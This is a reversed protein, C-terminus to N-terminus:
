PYTVTGLVVLEGANGGLDGAPASLTFTSLEAGTETDFTSQIVSRYQDETVAEGVGTEDLMYAALNAEIASRMTTTDPSIASFVFNTTIPTPANVILDASAMHAPKQVADMVDKVDQVESGSPIIDDDNGRIFYIITQGPDGGQPDDPDFVWVKTVGAVTDRIFVKITDVSFFALYGRVRELMRDRYDTESEEDTGGGLEGQDVSTQSDVGAITSTFTLTANADQNVDQGFDISIVPVVAATFTITITGTAPSTGSGAFTYTGTDTDLMTPTFTGNYETENAGAVTILVNNALPQDSALVFTATTGVSTLTTVSVVTTSIVVGATVEYTSGDSSTLQKGAAIPSGLTGTAMVNGNSQTAANPAGVWINAWRNLSDGTATDWFMQGRLIPIQQFFDFQRNANSDSVATVWNQEVFPDSEPIQNQIDARNQAKLEQASEPLNLDAM